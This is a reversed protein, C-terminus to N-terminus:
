HRPHQWERERARELADKNEAASLTSDELAVPDTVQRDGVSQAAFADSTVREQRSKIRAAESKDLERHLNDMCFAETQQEDDLMREHSPLGVFRRKSEKTIDVTRHQDVVDIPNYEDSRFGERMGAIKTYDIRTRGDQVANWMEQMQGYPVGKATIKTDKDEADAVYMKPGFVYLDDYQGEYDLDGLVKDDSVGDLKTDTWVSDTDCYLVRGGNDQVYEFWRYLETRGRATVYAALLPNIHAPIGTEDDTEVSEIFWDGIVTSGVLDAVSETESARKFLGGDDMDLKQGFKGYLSNMMLKVVYETANGEDRYQLRKDFLDSVYGEFPNFTRDSWVSEEIEIIEYGRELAFRLENHCWWDTIHGTPFLLKDDWKTPLVPIDMDPAKVTAKTMGESEWVRTRQESDSYKGNGRDYRISSPDPFECKTMCYPYLSAVDYERVPGEIHGKVIPSVRGGYYGKYSKDLIDRRPQEIAHDLYQSRFLTMATKAATTELSAGLDHLQERLWQMFEYCVKSDRINYAEMVDRPYDAADNAGFDIEYSEGGIEVTSLKPLDIIEGMAEVSMHMAVNMSDRFEWVHDSQDRIKAHIIASGNHFIEIDYGNNELWEYGGQELLAMLDYELNHAYIKGYRYRKSLLADLMESREWFVEPANRKAGDGVVSGMLFEGQEGTTECDFASIPENSQRPELPNLFNRESM